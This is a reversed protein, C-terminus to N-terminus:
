LVFRPRMASAPRREPPQILPPRYRMREPWAVQEHHIEQRAVASNFFIQDVLQKIRALLSQRAKEKQERMESLFAARPRDIWTDALFSQRLHDAGGSGADTVEHVFEAFQSQDAVVSFNFDVIRKQAGHQVVLGLQFPIFGSVVFKVAQAPM